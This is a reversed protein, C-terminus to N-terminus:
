SQEYYGQQTQPNMINPQWNMHPQPITSQQQQQENDQQNSKSQEALKGAKELEAVEAATLFRGGPGRPRRMAHRHRSEHLYPKRARAVRSIEELKARALRRKLIRHYQKANVYLPEEAPEETRVQPSYTTNGPTLVLNPMAPYAHPYTPPSAQTSQPSSQSPTTAVAAVAAAAVANMTDYRPQSSARTQQEVSPRVHSPNSQHYTPTNNNSM